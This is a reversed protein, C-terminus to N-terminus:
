NSKHFTSDIKSFLDEYCQTLILKNDNFFNSEAGIWKQKYHQFRVKNEFFSDFNTPNLYVGFNKGKWFFCEDIEILIKFYIYLQKKFDVEKSLDEISNYQQLFVSFISQFYDSALSFENVDLIMKLFVKDKILQYDDQNKCVVLKHNENYDKIEYYSTLFLAGWINNSIKDDSDNTLKLYSNYIFEFKSIDFKQVDYNEFSKEFVFELNQDEFCFSFQIIPAIKGNLIKNNEAQWLLSELYERNGHNLFLKFKFVEEVTLLTKSLKRDVITIINAIDDTTDLLVDVLKIANIV